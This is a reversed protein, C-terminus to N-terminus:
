KNTLSPQQPSGYTRQCFVSRYSVFWIAFLFMGCTQTKKMEKADKNSLDIDLKSALNNINADTPHPSFFVKLKSKALYAGKTAM